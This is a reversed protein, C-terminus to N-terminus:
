HEQITQQTQLRGPLQLKICATANKSDARHQYLPWLPLSGPSSPSQKLPMKLATLTVPLTIRKTKM